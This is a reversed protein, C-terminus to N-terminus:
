SNQQKIIRGDRLGIDAIDIDHKACIDRVQALELIGGRIAANLENLVDETIARRIEVRGHGIVSLVVSDGASLGAAELIDVPLVVGLSNGIKLIRAM